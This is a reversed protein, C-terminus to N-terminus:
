APAVPVLIPPLIDPRYSGPRNLRFFNGAQWVFLLLFIAVFAAGGWAQARLGTVVLVALAVVIAVFFVLGPWYLLPNSGQEYLAPVSMQALRRHLETVFIAYSRDFREQEVMSKWSSSCIELKPAGEAWIEALFRRSQMAVPRYSLRVRRIKRLSVRGSRRGARFTLTEGSLEFEWSAGLVSPRYSYALTAGTQAPSNETM